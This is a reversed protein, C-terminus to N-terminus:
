KEKNKQDNLAIDHCRKCLLRNPMGKVMSLYIDEDDQFRKDCNFCRSEVSLNLRNRIEKFAGFKMFPKETVHLIEYERITIKIVKM